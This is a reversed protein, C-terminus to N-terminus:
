PPLWEIAHIKRINSGTGAVTLTLAGSAATKRFAASARRTAGAFSVDYQEDLNTWTVANANDVIANAIVYSDKTLTPTSSISTGTTSNYYSASATTPLNGPRIVRYVDIVGADQTGGFSIIVDGTTGTPVKAYAHFILSWTGASAHNVITAAKGGITVSTPSTSAAKLGTYAIHIYRDPDAAGFSVTWTYSNSNTENATEAALHEVVFASQGSYLAGGIGPLVGM